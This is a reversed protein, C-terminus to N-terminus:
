QRKGSKKEADAWADYRQLDYLARYGNAKLTDAAIASRRGSRCYLLV